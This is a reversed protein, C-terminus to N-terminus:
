ALREILHLAIRLCQGAPHRRVHYGYVQQVSAPLAILLRDLRHRLWPPGLGQREPVPVGALRLRDGDFAFWAKDRGWVRRMETRRVDDAIFGVIVMSPAHVAALRQARLGIQDFGYGSVGSNLM